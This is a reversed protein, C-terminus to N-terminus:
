SSYRPPVLAMHMWHILTVIDYVPLRLRHAIAASYPPFNACECVIAGTDPYIKLLQEAAAIVERQQADRDVGRKNIRMNTRLLSDAPLGVMPLNPKVGINLLHVDRLADLDSVLIGVRKQAPLTREILPIQLLASSLFPVPAYATLENQLASLFGCSTTIASVGLEVLDDIAAFFAPLARQPDGNIVDAPRIGRVLRFQVAFPWTNVHAIDGPLREFGTDLVIIGIITGNVARAPFGPEM